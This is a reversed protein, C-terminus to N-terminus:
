MCFLIVMTSQKMPCLILGNNKKKHIIIAVQVEPSLLQMIQHSSVTSKWRELFNKRGVITVVNAMGVEGHAQTMEAIQFDNTDHTLDQMRWIENANIAINKDTVRNWTELMHNSNSYAFLNANTADVQCTTPVNLLFSYGFQKVYKEIEAAFADANGPLLDFHTDLRFDQKASKDPAIFEKLDAAYYNNYKNFILPGNRSFPLIRFFIKLLLRSLQGCLFDFSNSVLM